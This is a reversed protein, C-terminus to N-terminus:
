KRPERLSFTQLKNSNNAVLFLPKGNKLQILKVDKVDGPAFLGAEWLHPSTYNGKGDGYLVLGINADARSTEAETNYMNGAALIDEFGDKNLDYPVAGTLASYQAELPLEKLRFKGGENILLCSAFFEAKKNTSNELKEKEFISNVDADGFSAFTPFKETIFPMQESSCDRGRVPFLKDKQDFALVIDLNGSDDFDNCFVQFPKDKSAKFKHNLGINGVIFDQDGDGDFDCPDISFWWGNTHELGLDKSVETFNGNENQFVKIGMWEGCVLLDKDKDNDFDSWIADTVMGIDKIKSVKTSVDIFKGKDNELIFSEGSLPYKGPTQRGGVFLDQDGDGDYDAAIACSGSATIKPLAQTSKTFNGTGDNIYLRDQYLGSSAEFENSGSVVYLDLDGDTDADFFTAGIDEYRKEKEFLAESSKQFKGEADTLFLGGARQHAGGIYFDELGDGNVDGTALGPGLQSMKHPILIERKYDDYPIEEHYFFINNGKSAGVIYMAKATPPSYKESANKIDLTITQNVSTKTRITQQKEPTWTVQISDISAINGLGFHMINESSSQFGRVVYNEHYQLSDGTFITVKAGIGNLNKGEGKFKFNIYNQGRQRSTNKYLIPSDELNHVVLDLDGDNDLDGYAIGNSFGAYDLGWKKSVDDFLAKGKNKFAYNPVRTSPAIELHQELTLTGNSAEALKNGRRAFDRDKIDRIIGNTVVIDKLGDDDMDMLLTGWSWDTKQISAMQAVESFIGMGHNIHLSNRMYQPTMKNNVLGEFLQRDMSEMNVVARKRDKPLMEVEFIDMHTNNDIDAMDVGMAFFSVHRFRDSAEENFKGNRQNVYYFNDTAFDNAIYIDPYGDKNVDGVAIGLGSGWNALGTEKSAETYKNNGENIYFHDSEMWNTPNLRTAQLVEPSKNKTSQPLNMVYVDLDGDLDYDLFAAQTTIGPDDLGYQAAQETFSLDGNNIYLLNRRIEPDTIMKSGRCVYIDLFGDQNVDQMVVGTSWGKTKTIGSKATIDEFQFDGKNLYLAHQDQNSIFFLDQLGDNNLDGISVGGGAYINDNTLLNNITSESIINKFTVNSHKSSVTSFLPGDITVEEAFDSNCSCVFLSLFFFLIKINIKM